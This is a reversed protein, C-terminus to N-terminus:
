APVRQHRRLFAYEETLEISDEDIVTMGLAKEIQAKSVDPSLTISLTANAAWDVPEVVVLGRNLFVALKARVMEIDTGNLYYGVEDMCGTYM